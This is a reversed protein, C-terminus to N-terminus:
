PTPKFMLQIATTYIEHITDKLHPHQELLYRAQVGANIEMITLEGSELEAIDITAFNIGITKAARSAITNLDNTLRTKNAPLPHAKAGKALNHQWSRSLDPTKGYAFPCEGGVYFVRYETGIKHYPSMAANPQTNFITQAAAELAPITDCLYIDQGM